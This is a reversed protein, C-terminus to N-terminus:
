FITYLFVTIPSGPVLVLLGGVALLILFMPALWFKGHEGMFEWLDRLLTLM